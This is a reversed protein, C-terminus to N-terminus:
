RRSSSRRGRRAVPPVPARQRRRRVRGAARHLRGRGGAPPLDAPFIALVALRPQRPHRRRGHPGRITSAPRLYCRPRSIAQMTSSAAPPIGGGPRSQRGADGTNQLNEHGSRAGWGPVVGQRSQARDDDGPVLRLVDSRAQLADGEAVLADHDVAAAGVVGHCDSRTAARLDRGVFPGPEAGLLVDGQRERAAIPHERDVGVLPHRRWEGGLDHRRNRRPSGVAVLHRPEGREEATGHPM